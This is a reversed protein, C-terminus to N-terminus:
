GVNSSVASPLSVVTRALNDQMERLPHLVLHLPEPRIAAQPARGCASSSDGGLDPRSATVRASSRLRVLRFRPRYITEDALVDALSGNVNYVLLFSTGNLHLFTPNYAYCGASNEPPELILQTRDVARCPTTGPLRRDALVPNSGAAVSM